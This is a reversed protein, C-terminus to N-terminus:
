YLYERPIYQIKNNQKTQNSTQPKSYTSTYNKSNVNCKYVISNAQTGTISYIIAVDGGLLSADKRVQEVVNNMDNNFMGKKNFSTIYAIQMPKECIDEVNNTNFINEFTGKIIIDESNTPPFPSNMYVTGQCGSLFLFLFLINKM